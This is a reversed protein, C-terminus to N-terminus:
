KTNTLDEFFQSARKFIAFFSGLRMVPEVLNDSLFNATGRVTALTENASELVPKVENQILNVLRAVQVALVVSAIGLLLGVAGLFIITIDRIRETPTNPLLLFYIIGALAGLVLIGGVILGLSLEDRHSEKEVQQKESM